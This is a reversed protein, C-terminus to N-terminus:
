QPDRLRFRREDPLWILPGGRGMAAWRQSIRRKRLPRIWERFPLITQDAFGDILVFRGVSGDWVINASGLDPANADLTDLAAVLDNLAAVHGAEIRGSRLLSRLSEGLGGRGNTVKEVEQAVGRDTPVIAGVRAVPLPLASGEARLSLRLCARYERLFATHPGLTLWRRLSAVPGKRDRYKALKAPQFAKILLDPRHPHRHVERVAGRALPESDALDVHDLPFVRADM